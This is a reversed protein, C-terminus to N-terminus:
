HLLWHVPPKSFPVITVSVAAGSAVDTNEPQVPAHEPAARVQMTVSASAVCTVAFKAFGSVHSCIRASAGVDVSPFRLSNMPPSFALGNSANQKIDAIGSEDLCADLQQDTGEGVRLAVAGLAESLFQPGIRSQEIAPKKNGCFRSVDNTHAPDLGGVPCRVGVQEIERCNGLFLTALADALAAPDLSAAM